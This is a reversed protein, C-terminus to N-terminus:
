REQMKTGGWEVVTFGTRKPASLEQAPLAIAEEAPKWAMFVRIVTDPAPTVELKAADTYIDTQFAIINYPNPEM